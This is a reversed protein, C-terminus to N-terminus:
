ATKDKDPIRMFHSLVLVPVASVLVWLFFSQYGLAIQIDGSIAKFLVFGLQMVGTGLAYHATTYKGPAVVQMIFLIVGVFGFGYGFMEVSLLAGIVTLNAPATASLYYFVLNPLNMAIILFPLARRLGLWATFYGGIISGFIFAATGATGYLIGVDDTTLGLGGADRPDRLFLPGVSQIQGEGARFLVIFLVALWIGPKRFFDVLVDWLLVGVARMSKDARPANASSPLVWWHYAALVTMTTGLIAFIVTWAQAPPMQRELTGALYTLGGMAIFRAANFFAGQWGVYEAQQKKTLSAIYLGDAAIDHTASAFAVATLVIIGLAFWAPLHLSAAVLGMAAAGIFQFLVVITKKNPAAELFPSWLPKFVWALGLLATWRTITDNPLGMSKYMLTAILAVTFFPLGEMFYLTPVWAIPSRKASENMHSPEEAAAGWADGATSKANSM